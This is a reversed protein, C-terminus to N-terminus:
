SATSHDPRKRLGSKKELLLNFLDERGQIMQEISFHQIVRQRGTTGMNKRLEPNQLLFELKQTLAAPNEPPIVFGTEGEVILEATGGVRTGIVPLEAAMGELVINPCSEGFPVDRSPMVVMDASRLLEPVDDRIGLFRVNEAVGLERALNELNHREVGDGAFVLLPPNENKLLPATAHLMVDRGKEPALRGVNLIVPRDPSINFFATRCDQGPAYKQTDIGNYLVHIKSNPVGQNRFLDASYETLAVIADTVPNLIQTIPALPYNDHISLIRIPVNAMVAGIRGWGAALGQSLTWVIETKQARFTRALKFPVSLDTKGNSFPIHLRSTEVKNQMQIHRNDYFAYIHPNWRSKDLGNVVDALRMEMGGRAFSTIVFAVHKPPM